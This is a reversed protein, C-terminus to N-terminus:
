ELKMLKSIVKPHCFITGKMYFFIPKEIMRTRVKNQRPWARKWVKHSEILEVCLDNERIPIGNFCPKTITCDIRVAAKPPLVEVGFQMDLNTRYM